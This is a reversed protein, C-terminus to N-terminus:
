GPTIPSPTVTPAPLPSPTATPAPEPEPVGPRRTPTVTVTATPPAPEATPLTIPLEDPTPTPTATSTVTLTATATSTVTLTPTPLAPIVGPPLASVETFCEVLPQPGIRAIWGRQPGIRVELWASNFAQALPEVLAGNPLVGLVPYTAGPGQRLNLGPAIVQCFGARTSTPTPTVTPEVLTTATPQSFAPATAGGSVPLAALTASPALNPLVPPATAALPPSTLTPLAAVVAGSNSATLNTVLLGLAVFLLLALAALAIWRRKPEASGSPVGTAFTLNQETLAAAPDGCAERIALAAQLTSIGVQPQGSFLALTGQEHLAWARLEPDNERQAAALALDALSQWAGWQGALVAHPHLAQALPGVQGPTGIADAAQAAALLNQAESAIWEPAVAKAAAAAAFFAAARKREATPQLLHALEQRLSPSSIAARQAGITILQLTALRELPTVLATEPLESIAALATPDLDPEGVVLATLLRREAPDLTELALRCARNLASPTDRLSAAVAALTPLTVAGTRILAGALHIPLPVNDLAACLAALHPEAEPDGPDSRSASALLMRADARPLGRLPLNLLLNSPSGPAAVLLASSALTDAVREIQTRALPLRDLVILAQLPGLYTGARAMDIRIRRTPDSSRYFQDFLLQAVDDLAIATSATEAVSNLLDTHKLLAVGDPLNPHNVGALQRLLASAGAGGSSSIWAGGRPQIETALQAREADRDRFGRMPRPPPRLPAREITPAAAPSIITNNTIMDRGVVAGISLEGIQSGAGFAVIGDM